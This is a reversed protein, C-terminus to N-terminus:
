DSACRCVLKLVCFTTCDVVEKHGIRHGEEEELGHTNPIILFQNSAFASLLKM